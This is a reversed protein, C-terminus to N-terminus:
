TDIQKENQGCLKRDDMFLLRSVKGQLDGLQYGSKVERLVLSMPTLALVFLLPSLSDGQFIGRRIRVTVLNQGGSTLETKWKKISNGLVKQMNEVVGFMIICKKFWSNPVM